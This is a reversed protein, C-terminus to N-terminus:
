SNDPEDEAEQPAIRELARRIRSQDGRRHLLNQLFVDTPYIWLQGTEEITVSLFEGLEDPDTDPDDVLAAFALFAGRTVEREGLGALEAGRRYPGCEVTAEFSGGGMFIQQGGPDGVM